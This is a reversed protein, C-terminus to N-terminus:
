EVPAQGVEIDFKATGDQVSTVTITVPYQTTAGQAVLTCELKADVEAKLDDPCTVKPEPQNVEAALQKAAQTEVDSKSITKEGISVSGGCGTVLLATACGTAVLVLARKFTTM